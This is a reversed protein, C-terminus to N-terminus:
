KKVNKASKKYFDFAIKAFANLTEIVENAQQDTFHAFMPCAKVEEVTIDHIRKLDIQARDAM